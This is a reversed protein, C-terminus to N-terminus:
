IGNTPDPSLLARALRGLGDGCGSPFNENKRGLKEELVKGRGGRPHLSLKNGPIGQCVPFSCQRAFDGSGGRKGIREWVISPANSRAVSTVLSSFKENKKKLELASLM